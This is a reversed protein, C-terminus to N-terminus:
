EAGQHGSVAPAVKALMGGVPTEYDKRLTSYSIALLKSQATKPESRLVVCDASCALITWLKKRAQGRKRSKSRICMGELLWRSDVDFDSVDAIALDSMSYDSDTTPSRLRSMAVDITVDIIDAATIPTCATNDDPVEGLVNCVVCLAGDEDLAIHRLKDIVSQLEEIKM